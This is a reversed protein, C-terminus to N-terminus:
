RPADRKGPSVGFRPKEKAPAATEFDILNEWGPKLTVTNSYPIVAEPQRRGLLDGSDWIGNKNKDVIIRLTYTGPQLRLFHLMTDTVAKQYVSDKDKLLCFVYTSDFYKGPLHVHLKSYDEDRKTRFTYRSPLLDTGATDKAFGKLLRLTYLTNEKWDPQLNIMLKNTDTGVTIPAEVEIDMSDYTLNVRNVNFASIPTKLTIIVPETIEKTRRKSDSTDLNVTYIPGEATANNGFPKKGARGAAPAQQNNQQTVSTDKEAFLSLQIQETDNPVVAHDLFAVKEGAGDYILNGNGDSLAFIKFAKDPLGEFLFNGSADAKVVYSPKERVIVSDSLTANYLLVQAGTDRLGTQANIVVGKLRLSDFYDGTSFIYSYGTFPNGEHLDKVAKGFSIRYTTADQLLTDPIKVIVKRNGAEVNLPFPLLPSIHIETAVDSVTIYEDFRLEIKNVRTHLLSDKPTVAVLEPPTTDKKGGQPPVINACATFFCIIVLLFYPKYRLFFM